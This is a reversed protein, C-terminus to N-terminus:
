IYNNLYGCSVSDSTTYVSDFMPIMAFMALATYPSTHYLLQMANLGLDKQKTNTWIQCLTTSLIALLAMVSGTFNLSVDSVTALGIGLLLIVLSFLIPRSVTQKQMFYQFLLICPVCMLKSMQYLGVSNYALNLNMFIVSAAISISFPVIQMADTPKYDFLGISQFVRMSVATMVFHIFSLTVMYKFGIIWLHKNAIVIGVSSIIGAIIGFVVVRDLSGCLHSM